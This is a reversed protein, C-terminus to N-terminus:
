CVQDWKPNPDAELTAQATLGTNCIYIIGGYRLIDNIKYFTSTLGIVKGNQEM